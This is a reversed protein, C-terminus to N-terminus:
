YLLSSLPGNVCNQAVRVVRIEIQDVVKVKNNQLYVKYTTTCTEFYDARYLSVM